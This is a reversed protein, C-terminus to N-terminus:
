SFLWTIHSNENLITKISHKNCDEPRRVHAQLEHPLVVGRVLASAPEFVALDAPAAANKM